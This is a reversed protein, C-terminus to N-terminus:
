WSDTRFPVAPLGASNYLNVDPNNGWGYRVAVPISVNENYVVVKDGDQFAKAWYFKRDAGAITFGEIYGFKNQVLLGGAQNDFSIVAKDGNIEMSRYSPGSYIVDKKGYDKNLAILALRKGVDQKNRPHIDNAEGIDIIVAQGTQPVSLTMTQAERLLSWDSNVPVQDKEMFNALQVWYFPFDSKWKTRWDNILTPFLTRYNMAASANNEGQYWIAGKIQFDIIPNIMANYLLSPCMNPGVNVFNFQKNTVSPKYKWNGALPIQASNVLLYVEDTTGYIGGGGGTDNVRVTIVNRGAKLTNQPVLYERKEAHNSTEGVKIGNVWTIDEDDIPGLSLKAAKGALENKLDFSYSFWVIGDTDGLEEGSWLQPVTMQKWSSTDFTPKFWEEKLGPDDNLAKFYADLAIRNKEIFEQLNGKDLIDKYRASFNDSLQGFSAPSIWTEIDTGGWSSNIIGIPINLEQNLHRAFYYGVASFNGVTAPTCVDWNGKLDNLPEMSIEKVVNFSRINPHNAAAIEARANNSSAVVWEMNSQGSCIWVDGLLINNLEITNSKGKVTLSYPGGVPMAKLQAMWKGNRGAKVKKKQGNFTVEVTENKDAWGWINVPQDRQIVMNDTFIGPLKVEAQLPAAFAIFLLVSLIILPKTKM